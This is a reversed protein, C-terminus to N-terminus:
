RIQKEKIIGQVIAEHEEPTSYRCFMKMIKDIEKEEKNRKKEIQCQRKFDM